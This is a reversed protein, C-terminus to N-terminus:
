VSIKKIQKEIILGAENSFTRALHYGSILWWQGLVGFIRTPVLNSRLSSLSVMSRSASFFNDGM